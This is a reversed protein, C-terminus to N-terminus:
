AGVTVATAGFPPGIAPPVKTVIVPVPNVPAVTSSKPVVGARSQVTSESVWIPARVGAPVCPVTSTVTVVGPPM